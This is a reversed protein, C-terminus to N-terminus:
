TLGGGIFARPEVMMVKDEKADYALHGLITLTSGELAFLRVRELYRNNLAARQLLNFSGGANDREM